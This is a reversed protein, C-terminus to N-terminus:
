SRKKKKRLINNLQIKLINMENCIDFCRSEQEDTLEYFEIDNLESLENKLSQLHKKLENINKMILVM